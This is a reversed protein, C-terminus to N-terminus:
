TGASNTGGDTQRLGQCKMANPNPEPVKGLAGPVQPESTAIGKMGSQCISGSQPYQSTSPIVMSNPKQSHPLTALSKRTCSWSPM